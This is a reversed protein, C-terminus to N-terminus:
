TILGFARLLADIKENRQAATLSLAKYPEQQAALLAEANVIPAVESLEKLARQLDLGDQRRVNDIATVHAPSGAGTRPVPPTARPTFEGRAM